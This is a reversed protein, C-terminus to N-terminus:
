MAFVLLAWFDTFYFFVSNQVFLCFCLVTEFLLFELLQMNKNIHRFYHSVIFTLPIDFDEFQLSWRSILILIEYTMFYSDQEGGLFM